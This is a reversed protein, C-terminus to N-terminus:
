AERAGTTPAGAGRACVRRIEGGRKEAATARTVRVTLGFATPKETQPPFARPFVPRVAAPLGPPLPM